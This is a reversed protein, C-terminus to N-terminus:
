LSLTNADNPNDFGSLPRVHHVHIESGFKARHETDSLGCARCERGDRSLAKERQTGWNTGYYRRVGGEWMPHDEGVINESKWFGMCTESCFHHEQGVLQWRHKEGPKGCYDCLFGLPGGDWRPHNEGRMNQKQWETQCENKCFFRENRESKSPPARKINGCHACTVEIGAISAGHTRKHHQKMGRDTHFVEECGDWRCLVDPDDPQPNVLSDGHRKAHHNRMGQVSKFDDRGCAPCKVDSSNAEPDYETMSRTGGSASPETHLWRVGRSMELPRAEQLVMPIGECYANRIANESM